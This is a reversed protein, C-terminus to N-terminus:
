LHNKLSRGFLQETRLNKALAPELDLPYLSRVQAAASPTFGSSRQVMPELAQALM